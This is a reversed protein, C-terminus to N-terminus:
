FGRRLNSSLSTLETTEPRRGCVPASHDLVMLLPGMAVLLPGFGSVTGWKQIKVKVVAQVHFTLAIVFIIDSEDSLDTVTQAWFYNQITFIYM